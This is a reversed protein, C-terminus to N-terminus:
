ASVAVEGRYPEESTWVAWCVRTLKNAVACTAKNHGARDALELAWSQLRTLPKGLHQDRRAALLVSRAGHVMLMRLHQDGQKTIRGLSRQNGSSREKPTLGIWSALKRGSSFRAASGVSSVLATSTLLGIGPITRLRQVTANARSLGELERELTKMRRELEVIESLVDALISKLVAPLAESELAEIAAPRVKKAGAPVPIGFELLAARVANIRQVRTKKWQERVRHLQQVQQADPSRIPVTEIGECRHAEFIADADIRDSKGRRRYPSVYHAPIMKVAHEHQEAFRAWHQASSCAEVLVLAPPTNVLFRAFPERKLRHRELLKGRTDFVAVEFVDKALDISLTTSHM